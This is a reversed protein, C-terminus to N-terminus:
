DFFRLKSIVYSEPHDTDKIAKIFYKTVIGFSGANGGMVGRFLELNDQDEQNKVVTPRSVKKHTGDALM